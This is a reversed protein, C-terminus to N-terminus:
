PNVENQPYPSRSPWRHELRTYRGFFGHTLVIGIRDANGNKRQVSRTTLAYDSHRELLTSLLADIKCRLLFRKTKQEAAGFINRQLLPQVVMKMPPSVATSNEHQM